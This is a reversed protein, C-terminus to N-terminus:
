SLLRRVQEDEVPDFEEYWDGVAMFLDPVCLCVLEDVAPRLEAATDPAAVPVAVTLSGPRRTRVGAVAARMTAGTALGDDVLVVPQGAPDLPPRGGRYDRERAALDASERAAAEVVHRLDVGLREILGTNLARGGGSAVAGIALEPQAPAGLKRVALVDLRGETALAVEHAVVVGGRALGLVLPRRVGLGALRLGLARGADRRDRFRDPSREPM